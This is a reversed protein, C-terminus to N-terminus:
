NMMKCTQGQKATECDSKISKSKYCKPTIGFMPGDMKQGWGGKKEETVVVHTQTFQLVMYNAQWFNDQRKIEWVVTAAIPWFASLIVDQRELRSSVVWRRLSNESQGGREERGETESVWKLVLGCSSEVNVTSTQDCDSQGCSTSNVQATDAVKLGCPDSYWDCLFLLDGECYWNIYPSVTKLRKQKEKDTM